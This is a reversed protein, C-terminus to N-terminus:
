EQPWVQNLVVLTGGCLGPCIPLVQLYRRGLGVEATGVFICSVALSTLQLECLTLSDNALTEHRTSSSSGTGLSRCLLCSTSLHPVAPNRSVPCCDTGVLRVMEDLGVRV